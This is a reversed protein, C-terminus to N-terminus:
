AAELIHHTEQHVRISGVYKMSSEDYSFGAEVLHLKIMVNELATIPVEFYGIITGNEMKASLFKSGSGLILKNTGLYLRQKAIQRAAM